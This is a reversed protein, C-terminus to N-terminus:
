ESNINYNHLLIKSNANQIDGCVLSCEYMEKLLSNPATSGFRILNKHKLYNKITNIKTNRIHIKSTEINKRTKVDKILVRVTKNKVNKGLNFTKKIESEQIYKSGVPINSITPQQITPQIYPQQITPQTIPQMIPQMIPQIYPQQITPQMIPQIYPQQITPQMIPQQIIPQIYPQQITPQTNSDGTYNKWEKFTPKLGHKLNSYPPTINEFKNHNLQINKKSKKHQKLKELLLRRINTTNITIPESLNSPAKTNKSTKKKINLDSPNVNISRVSM